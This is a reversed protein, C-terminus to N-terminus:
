APLRFRNRGVPEVLGDHILAGLLRDIRHQDPDVVALAKRALPKPSDRLLQVLDGRVKRDTGEYGQARRTPGDYAPSGARVWACRARLPCQPCQPSRAQCVLAGLEMVAVNWVASTAPDTPVVSAALRTEAVTLTPAAQAQAEIVRALVRRVNTDVVVTREGFAFAAVAAATYAGVGPLALLDHETRPVEGDHQEVMALAAERLRLARRPYGLRGWARVVEGPSEAALAAPTPWRRLWERWPGVVRAVPTQQAMVESVFVGWPSCAPDRWPLERAHEAYWDLVTEHLSALEIPSLPGAPRSPM